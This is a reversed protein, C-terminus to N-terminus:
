VVVELFPLFQKQIKSAHKTRYYQRTKPKPHPEEYAPGQKEFFFDFFTKNEKFLSCIRKAHEATFLLIATKFRINVPYLVTVPFLSHRM